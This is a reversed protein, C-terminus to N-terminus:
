TGRARRDILTANVVASAVIVRSLIYLGLLLVAASGLAGYTGQKSLAYPGIVYAAVIQLVEVAIALVIAGPVLHTWHAGSHPLRLSVLLWLGTYAVAVGVTALLGLGGSSARAWAAFGAVAFFGLMLALLRLTGVVTPKPAGARVEGFVLRHSAILVRLLSRTEFALIPVGVLLAYWKATGGSASAVSNSVLGVLGLSKALGKPSQSAGSAAFGLGAVLVLAFPLLWIFFRYALAGAMIGGGVEGDRDAMEYLADVTGHRGREEQARDAVQQARAQLSESLLRARQVRGPRDDKEDEPV